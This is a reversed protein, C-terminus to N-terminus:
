SKGKHLLGNIPTIKQFLGARGVDAVARRHSTGRRFAMDAQRQQMQAVNGPAHAALQIAIGAIAVNEM